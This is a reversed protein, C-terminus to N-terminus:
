IYSRLPMKVLTRKKKYKIYIDTIIGGSASMSKMMEDGHENFHTLFNKNLFFSLPISNGSSFQIHIQLIETLFAFSKGAYIAAIM